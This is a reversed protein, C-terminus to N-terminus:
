RRGGSGFMMRIGRRSSLNRRSQDTRWRSKAEEPRYVVLDGKNLGGTIETLVGDSIGVQVPREKVSGNDIMVRVFDQDDKNLVAESPVLLAEEKEAVIIEINTTMEPKLLSKNAGILEIKVEFTVVNSVNVGKTGIREIKGSFRKGLFADATIIVNQSLEVKGIDSEDVSAIIFMRSLDSIVMAVTGGGVNSIGSSIIQGTQVNRESVVGDIPSFVKTDQLRQEALSLNIIDTEVQAEALRVNQRNIELEKEKLALEEMRIKANELDVEAQIAAIEMSEKSEQSTLKKEFLHKRREAKARADIASAKASKLVSEVSKREIALGKKAIQLEVKSQKLRAQSSTLAIKGQKVKRQEDVPDLEVLLDGKKVQDSIDFLLKIVEGSAKCKIEVDLNSVVRGTSPVTFRIPGKEVLAKSWEQTETEVGKSNRLWFYGVTIIMVGLILIIYRKNILMKAKQGMNQLTKKMLSLLLSLQQSM